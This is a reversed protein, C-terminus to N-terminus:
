KDLAMIILMLIMIQKIQIFLNIFHYKIVCVAVRCKIEWSRFIYKAFHYFDYLFISIFTDQNCHSCQSFFVNAHKQRLIKLSKENDRFRLYSLKFSKDLDNLILRHNKELITNKSTQIYSSCNFDIPFYLVSMKVVLRSSPKISIILFRCRSAFIQSNLSKFYSKM